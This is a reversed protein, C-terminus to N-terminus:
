ISVARAKKDPGTDVARSRHDPHSYEGYYQALLLGCSRSAGPPM